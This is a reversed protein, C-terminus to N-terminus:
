KLWVEAKEAKTHKESLTVQKAKQGPSAKSQLRGGKDGTYNLNYAHDVVSSM